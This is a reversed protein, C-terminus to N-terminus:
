TDPFRLSNVSWVRPQINKRIQETSLKSGFCWRSNNFHVLVKKTSKSIWSIKITKRNTTCVKELDSWPRLGRVPYRRKILNFSLCRSNRKIYVLNYKQSKKTSRANKPATLTYERTGSLISISCLSIRSTRYFWIIIWPKVM